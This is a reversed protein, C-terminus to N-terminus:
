SFTKAFVEWNFFSAQVKAWGPALPVLLVVALLVLVTSTGAILLSGNFYAQNLTHRAGM